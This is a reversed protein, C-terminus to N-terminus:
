RLAQAREDDDLLQSRRDIKRRIRALVELKEPQKQPLLSALTRVREFIPDGLARDQRRLAEAVPEAQEPRDVLLAGHSSIYGTDPNTMGLKDASAWVKRAPTGDPQLKQLNWEIPNKAARVLPIALVAVAAVSAVLLAPGARRGLAAFPRRWLNTRPTLLGPRLREGAHVLPPVLLFTFIWVLLMGTGGLWGFQSFGRFRTGLLGGYAGSAAGMPPVPGATTQPGRLGPA